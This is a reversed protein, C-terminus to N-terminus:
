RGPVRPGYRMRPNYTEGTQRGDRSGQHRQGPTGAPDGSSRQPKRGDRPHNPPLAREAIITVMPEPPNMPSTTVLM